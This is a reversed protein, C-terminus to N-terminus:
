ICEVEMLKKFYNSTVVGYAGVLLHHLYAKTPKLKKGRMKPSAIYVEGLEYDGSYLKVSVRKRYYHFPYGEHEDLLKIHAAPIEYFIGEVVSTKDEVINAYGCGAQSGIKDFVLRWGTLVAWRQNIIEVGRQRMRETDMNSGYAFYKITKM